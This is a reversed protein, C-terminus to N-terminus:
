EKPPPPQYQALALDYRFDHPDVFEGGIVADDVRRIHAEKAVHHVGAVELDFAIAVRDGVALGVDDPHSMLFGTRSLNRIRIVWDAGGVTVTGRLEVAKRIATRRELMVAFTRGCECKVRVRVPTGPRLPTEARVTAETGCAPCPARAIGDSGVMTIRPHPSM